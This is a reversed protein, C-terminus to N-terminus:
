YGELYGLVEELLETRGDVGYMIQLPGKETSRSERFRETLWSMFAEAEETFGLRL